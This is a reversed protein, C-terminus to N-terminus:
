RLELPLATPGRLVASPKWGPPDPDGRLDPFRRLLASLAVQAELRALGAGLCFHNGLGFALHSRDGRALDLRDPEPFHAPDRNASGLLVWVLQNRRLRRGGFDLDETVVRETFQVPSDFRLLEEVASDILGPDEALRKREGPNALLARVGNGILNTTTEHGAALILGCLSILETEDLSRGSEEAAIMASLLDERPEARREALMGRFYAALENVAEVVPAMGGEGSLPDLIQVLAESWRRFDARDKVPVGLLEAIVIVPLPHAFDRVLDMEGAPEVADLLDAVVAEIRPRLAQVRRPTFAKSVLGRLRAHDPGDLNLLNTNVFGLLGPDPAFLRELLKALPLERRDASFRRDRLVAVVDDYRSVIWIRLLPSRYIPAEERLRRYDPYPDQRHRPHWPNYRGFLFGLLRMPWGLRIVRQLFRLM